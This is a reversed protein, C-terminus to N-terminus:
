INQRRAKNQTSWTEMAHFILTVHSVYKQFSLLRRNTVHLVFLLHFVIVRFGNLVNHSTFRGSELM